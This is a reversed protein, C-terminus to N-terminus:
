LDGDDGAAPHKMVAEIGFFDEPVIPRAKGTFFAWPITARGDALAEDRTEFPGTGWREEDSSWYWAEESM